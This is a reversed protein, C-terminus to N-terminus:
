GWFSQFVFYNLVLVFQIPYYKMILLYKLHWFNNLFKNNCFCFLVFACICLFISFIQKAFVLLFLCLTAIQGKTCELTNKEERFLFFCICICICFSIWFIQQFLQLFLVFSCDKWWMSKLAASLHTKRPILFLVFIYWSFTFFSYKSSVSCIWICNFFSQQLKNLLM